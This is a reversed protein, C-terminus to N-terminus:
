PAKAPSAGSYPSTNHESTKAASHSRKREHYANRLSPVARGRRRPRARARSVVGPRARARSVVGPRTRAVHRVLSRALASPPTSLKRSRLDSLPRFTRTDLDFGTHKRAAVLRATVAWSTPPLGMAVMLISPRGQRTTGSSFIPLAPRHADFLCRRRDTNQGDEEAHAHIDSRVQSPTLHLAFGDFVAVRGM